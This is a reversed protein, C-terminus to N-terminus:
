QYIGHSTHITPSALSAMNLRNLHGKVSSSLPKMKYVELGEPSILKVVKSCAKIDKYFKRISSTSCYQNIVDIFNESIKKTSAVNKILKEIEESTKVENLKTKNETCYKKLQVIDKSFKKSILKIFGDFNRDSSLLTEHLYNNIFYSIIGIDYHAKVHEETRVHFPRLDLFSKMERFANEVVYKDRYHKIIDFASLKFHIKDSNKEVHDTIYVMLGDTHGAKLIKQTLVKIEIKYSEIEKNIVTPVLTYSIFQAMKNKKLVEIVKVEADDYNLTKKRNSFLLNLKNIALSANVMCREREKTEVAYIQANFSVIYRRKKIVGLDRYFVKKNSTYFSNIPINGKQDEIPLNIYDLIRDRTNAFKDLDFIDSIQNDKIGSIFKSENKEIDNFNSLSAVGRDFCYTIEKINYKKRVREILPRFETSDKKNGEVVEWAVPYGRRDTILMLGVVHSYFSRTKELAYKSLTCKTGEFWSTSGDFYYVEFESSSNSVSFKWFLEEIKEKAEHIKSLENFIKNKTYGESDIDMISSLLTDNFWEVTKIKSTPDLLRNATLIRAIHETSLVQNGKIKTDFVNSLGIRKWIENVILSDFYSKEDEFIISQLSVLDTPSKSNNLIRLLARYNDAEKLSLRGLYQLVKKMNKTKEGVKEKYCIALSYYSVTGEAKTTRPQHYLHIKRRKGDRKM